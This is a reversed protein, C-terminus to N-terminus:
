EKKGNTRSPEHNDTLQKMFENPMKNRKQSNCNACCPVINEITDSGGKTFPIYHDRTVTETTLAKGCYFCKRGLQEFKEFFEKETFFENKGFRIARQKRSRELVRDHNAQGYDHNYVSKNEKNKEYWDHMYEKTRESNKRKWNNSAQRQIEGHEKYYERQRMAREEKHADNYKKTAEKQCAKCRSRLGDKRHSDKHFNELPQPNQQKCNPNSCNKTLM